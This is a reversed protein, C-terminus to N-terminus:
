AKTLSYKLLMQYFDFYENLIKPEVLMRYASREFIVEGQKIINYKLEPSEITNLIVIDVKDSQLHRTIKDQLDFKIEFMKKKDNGDFYIAFDYDSLPGAKGTVKSGFLYALKVQPYLEFIKNLNELDTNTM